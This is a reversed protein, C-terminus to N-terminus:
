LIIDFALAFSERRELRLWSCIVIDKKKEGDREGDIEEHM